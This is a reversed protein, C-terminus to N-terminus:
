VDHRSHATRGIFALLHKRAFSCWRGHVFLLEWNRSRMFGSELFLNMERDWCPCLKAYSLGLKQWKVSCMKTLLLQMKIVEKRSPKLTLCLSINAKYICSHSLLGSCYTGWDIGVFWLGIEVGSWQFKCCVGFHCDKLKVM